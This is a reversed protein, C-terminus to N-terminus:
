YIPCVPLRTTLKEARLGVSWGGNAGRAFAAATKEKKANVSSKFQPKPMVGERM